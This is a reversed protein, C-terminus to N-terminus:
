NVNNYYNYVSITSYNNKDIRVVSVDELLLVIRSAYVVVM